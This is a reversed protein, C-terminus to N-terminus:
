KRIPLNKLVWDLGDRVGEGSVACCPQIQWVRDRITHLQLGEAIEDSPAAHNLDQKNAFVLIPVGGLKEEM